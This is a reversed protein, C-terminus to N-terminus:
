DKVRDVPFRIYVLRGIRQGNQPDLKQVPVGGEVKSIKGIMKGDDNPFVVLQYEGVPFHKDKSYYRVIYGYGVPNRDLFGILFYYTGDDFSAGSYMKDFRTRDPKLDIQSFDIIDDKIDQYEQAKAAIRKVKKEIDKFNGKPPLVYKGDADFTGCLQKLEMLENTYSEYEKVQKRMLAVKDKLHTNEWNIKEWNGPESYDSDLYNRTEALRNLFENVDERTKISIGLDDVIKNFRRQVNIEDLRKGLSDLTKNISLIFDSKFRFDENNTLAKLTDIGNKVKSELADLENQNTYVEVEANYQSAQAIQSVILKVSNKYINEKRAIETKANALEDSIPERQSPDTIKSVADDWKVLWAEFDNFIANADSIYKELENAVPDLADFRKAIEQFETRAIIPSGMRTNISSIANDREKIAANLEKEVKIRFQRADETSLVDEPHLSLEYILKDRIFDIQKQIESRDKVWQAVAAEYGESSNGDFESITPIPMNFMRTEIDKFSIIHKNDEGKNMLDHIYDKAEKKKSKVFDEPVEKNAKVASVNFSCEELKDMGDKQTLTGTDMEKWIDGANQMIENIQIEFIRKADDLVVSELRVLNDSDLYKRINQNNSKNFDDPLSKIDNFYRVMKTVDKESLFNRQLAALQDAFAVNIRGKWEEIFLKKDNLLRNYEEEESSNKEFEVVSKESSDLKEWCSDKELHTISSEQKANGISKDCDQVAQAFDRYWKIRNETNEKQSEYTNWKILPEDDQRNFLNLSFNNRVLFPIDLKGLNQYLKDAASSQKKWKAPDSLNKWENTGTTQRIETLQTEYQSLQNSFQVGMFIVVSMFVAALVILISLVTLIPYVKEWFNIMVKYRILGNIDDIRRAFADELRPIESKEADTKDACKTKFEERLDQLKELSDKLQRLESISLDQDRYLNTAQTLFVEEYEIINCNIAHEHNDQVKDLVKKEVAKGVQSGAVVPKNNKPDVTTKGERKEKTDLRLGYLYVIRDFLSANGHSLRCFEKWDNYDAIESVITNNKKLKKAM